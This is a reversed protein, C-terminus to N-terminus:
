VGIGFILDYVKENHTINMLTGQIIGPLITNPIEFKFQLSANKEINFPGDCLIDDYLYPIIGNLNQFELTVPGELGEEFYTTVIGSYVSSPVVIEGFTQPGFEGIKSAM